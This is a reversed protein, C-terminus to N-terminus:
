VHSKEERNHCSRCLTKGNDIEFRLEANEKWPVIHHVDNSSSVKGCTQCTYNDRILVAERWEIYKPSYFRSSGVRRGTRKQREPDARGGYREEYTIGKPIIPPKGWERSGYNRNTESRIRRQEAAREPGSIEEYTKGKRSPGPM